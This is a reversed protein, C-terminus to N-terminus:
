WKRFLNRSKLLLYEQFGSYHWIRWSNYVTFSLYCSTKPLLIMILFWNHIHKWSFIVDFDGFQFSGILLLTKMILSFLLFPRLAIGTLRIFVNSIWIYENSLFVNYEFFTNLYSSDNANFKWNWSFNHSFARRRKISSSLLTQSSLTFSINRSILDSKSEIEKNEAWFRVFIQLGLFYIFSTM